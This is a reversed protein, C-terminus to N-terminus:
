IEKYFFNAKGMEYFNENNRILTEVKGKYKYRVQRYKTLKLTGERKMKLKGRNFRSLDVKDINTKTWIGSGAGLYLPFYINKQYYKEPVKSLLKKKYRDFFKKSLEKLLCFLEDAEKTNTQVKFHVAVLPKLSERFVPLPKAENKIPSYDWKQVLVLNENKLPQSDSVYIEHFIDNFKQSKRAGWLINKEDRFYENVLVTRIAGKLSSGPIYPNGYPDRVFKRVENLKGSQESEFGHEKIRYGGFNRDKIRNDNLFDILRSKTVNNNINKLLFNEFKRQNNLNEQGIKKYLLEINPFYFTNDEYLYEKQTHVEGCGIHLPALTELVFNYQKYYSKM